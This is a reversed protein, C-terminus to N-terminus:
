RSLEAFNEPRNLSWDYDIFRISDAQDIRSHWAPDTYAKVWKRLSGKENEYDTKYWNMVKSLYLIDNDFRLHRPTLFARRTNETLVVDLTDAHYITARLAPCSVSACNVAFHIRADKWGKERYNDGLLIDKEMNDLSFKKGGVNFLPQQFLNDVFPNFRGGYDWVSDVLKGDVPNELIHAIIFFNYANLWFATTTERTDLTDPNFAALQQQQQQLWVLAQGNNNASAYDFASVLGREETESAENVPKETLFEDLLSQFPSFLDPQEDAHVPVFAMFFTWTVFLLLGHSQTM